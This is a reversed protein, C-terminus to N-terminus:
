RTSPPPADRPDPDADPRPEDVPGDDSDDPEVDDTDGANGAEDHAELEGDDDAEDDDAEDDAADDAEDDDADDDDYEDDYDDDEDYLDDDDIAGPRHRYALAAGAAVIAIVSVIQATPIGALTWNDSRLFELVFRVIAYWIVFILFLDGARLRHGHRRGLWWLTVFGVVGSVSEYLFLPHFATTELPFTECPYAAIRHACDIAIGWPLGTPPGYLEQNFFNGWRGIAQMVFLSPAIIDAWRLFPLRKWRTYLYAAITGSVIGGYVGLGSIGAFQLNGDPGRTVPLIATIPDNAYLQWQDIVHYLRGGALAAIAVIVIGNDVHRTDYRWRRAGLILVRYVAALGVAYAIGYWYIPLPGLRFAIPDPTFGIVAVVPTLAVFITALVPSM